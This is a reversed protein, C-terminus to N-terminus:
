FPQFDSDPPYAIWSEYLQSRVKTQRLKKSSYIHVHKSRVYNIM